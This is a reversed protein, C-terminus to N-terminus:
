RSVLTEFSTVSATVHDIMADELCGSLRKRANEGLAPRILIEVNSGTATIVPPAIDKNITSRCAGWLGRTASLANPLDTDDVSVSLKVQSIGGALHADPRAQTFDALLDIGAYSAGALVVIAVVRKIQNRRPKTRSVGERSLFGGAPLAIPQLREALGREFAPQATTRAIREVAWAIASVVVGAGMLVPIFVNLDNNKTLWAFHERPAPATSQIRTLVEIQNAGVERGELKSEIRKLREVITATAFAVLSILFLIGAIMARNWEWRYLYVFIYTGSGIMCAVLTGLAIRRTM